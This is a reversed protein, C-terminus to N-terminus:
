CNKFGFPPHEVPQTVPQLGTKNKRWDFYEVETSAESAPPNNIKNKGEVIKLGLLPTYWLNHFLNLGTKNRYYNGNCPSRYCSQTGLQSCIESLSKQTNLHQLSFCFNSLLYKNTAKSYQNPDRQYNHLDTAGM